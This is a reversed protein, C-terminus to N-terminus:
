EANLGTQPGTYLLSTLSEEYELIETMAAPAVDLEEKEVAGLMKVDVKLGIKPLTSGSVVMGM